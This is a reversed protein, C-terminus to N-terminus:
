FQMGHEEGSNMEVTLVQMARPTIEQQAVHRFLALRLPPPCYAEGRFSVREAAVIDAASADNILYGAVEARIASLFKDPDDNM